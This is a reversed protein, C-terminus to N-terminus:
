FYLLFSSTGQDGGKLVAESEVPRQIILLKLFDVVVAIGTGLDQRRSLNDLRQILCRFFDADNNASAFLSLQFQVLLAVIELSESTEQSLSHLVLRDLSQFLSHITATSFTSTSLPPAEQLVKEMYSLCFELLGYVNTNWGELSMDIALSVFLAIRTSLSPTWLSTDISKM